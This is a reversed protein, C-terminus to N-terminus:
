LGDLPCDVQAQESVTDAVVGAGPWRSGAAVALATPFTRSKDGPYTQM